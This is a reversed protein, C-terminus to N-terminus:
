SATAYYQRFDDPFKKLFSVIPMSAADGLACLTTGGM